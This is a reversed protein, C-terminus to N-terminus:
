AKVELCNRGPDRRSAGFYGAAVGPNLRTEADLLVAGATVVRQGPEVGSWVPYYGGGRRGVRGGSAAHRGDLM